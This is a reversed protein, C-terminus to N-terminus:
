YKRRWKRKKIDSESELEDLPELEEPEEMVNEEELEGGAERLAPEAEKEAEEETPEEVETKTEDGEAAEEEHGEENEEAETGEEEMRGGGGKWWRQLIGYYLLLMIIIFIILATLFGITPLYHQFIELYSREVPKEEISIFGSVVRENGLSDVARVQFYHSGPRVGETPWILIYEGTRNAVPTMERWGTSDLDFAVLEVDSIDFVGAHFVVDEGERVVTGTLNEMGWTYTVNIEPGTNDVFITYSKVVRNDARDEVTATLTHEGDSLTTTDLFYEYYRGSEGKFIEFPASGDISLTVRAIGIGDVAYLKLNFVGSIHVGALISVQTLEPPTNDVVFQSEVQVLHGAEDRAQVKLTHHGDVLHTTNLPTSIDVWGGSDVSYLISKLFDDTVQVDIPILGSVIEGNLPGKLILGPPTNDVYFIIPPLYVMKGSLDVAVVSLNHQGDSLMYTDLLLEYYGTQQNFSLIREVGDIDVIVRRIGVQDYASVRVTYSGELMAGPAPNVLAVEPDHNDVVVEITEEVWHGAQDEGRFTIRHPGDALLTTNWPITIPVWSSGDVNYKVPGPFADTISARMEVEGSLYDGSLPYEIRLVPPQNDVNFEVTSSITMKGSLDYAMATVNRVGDETWTITNVTYEYYGSGENYPILINVDFIRIQVFDIGVIDTAVVRVVMEGSVFEGVTPSVVSCVPPTNDVIVRMTRSTEKGSFDTARVKVTHEGDSFYTTNWVVSVDSWGTDDVSYDVSRLFIDEAEVVFRVEGEVIQGDYPTHVILLPAHNDIHFLLPGRTISKGSYDTITINAQYTGDPILSTDTTYEWYGSQYNYAMELSYGFIEISVSAVGVTDAAVARFTYIGGIYQGSSPHTFSGTPYNNDVFLPVEILTQHGALDLARFHITHTGDSLLSTNLPTSINVWGTGDVNYEVRDLFIDTASVNFTEIGELFTSPLPHYVKLVPAHNDLNFQVPGLVTVKGSLDEIYAKVTYTGDPTVSTDTSYEWYGSITNYIATFNHGFVEVNVRSLGVADSATIRFTFVGQVFQGPVPNNISGNPYTNDVVVTLQVQTVHGAKDTSRITVTHSGDPFATTDWITSIDVWGSGDINYVTRDPFADTVTVNIRIRGEVYQGNYPSHITVMPANNDIHFLVPGYTTNHGATDVVFATITHNGDPYLMTNLSYEYYGTGRNLSMVLVESGDIIAKVESLGVTDSASVKLTYVGEIYSNPTPAAVGCTPATNDVVISISQQTVHSANDMARVTLTHTGDSVTSTNLLATLYSGTRNFSKWEMDDIRYEVKNLFVDESSVNIMYDGSLIEGDLPANISLTPANNDIYFTINQTRTSHGVNDYAVAYAQYQGDPYISTSVTYEYSSTIPNYPMTVTRNFVTINVHHVGVLDTAVARFIVSGEVYQGDIPSNIVCSPANNDVYITVASNGVLGTVDKAEATLTHAGDTILTSDWTGTWQNGSKTMQIWANNDIKFQCAIVHSTTNVKVTVIGSVYSRDLPQVIVPNPATNSLTFNVPGYLTVSGSLDTVTVNLWCAGDNFSLTNITREWLQTVSNFYANITGLSSMKGGFTLRVSSVTSPTGASVKFTYHGTVVENPLPAIVDVSVPEVVKLTVNAYRVMTGSTGRVSITYTRKPTSSTTRVTVNSSTVNQNLVGPSFTVNITSTTPSVTYSLTVNSSFNNITDMNVTYTTVAGPSIARVPPEATLYYDPSTSVRLTVWIKKTVGGDGTDTATVRLYYTGAPTSSSTNVQLTTVNTSVGAPTVNIPTITASAGTPAAVVTDSGVASVWDVDLDIRTVVGKSKVDVEYSTNMGPSILHFTPSATLDFTSSVLLRYASSSTGRNMDLVLLGYWGTSEPNYTFQLSGGASSAEDKALYDLLDGTGKYLYMGLRETSPVNDIRFTYQGGSYLYVDYMNILPVSGALTGTYGGGSTFYSYRYDGVYVPGTYDLPDSGYLPGGHSDSEVDVGYSWDRGTFKVVKIYKTGGGLTHGDLIVVDFEDSGRTSSAVMNTMDYDTYAFLDFDEGTNRNIIAVASYYNTYSPAKFRIIDSTGWNWWWGSSVTRAPNDNVLTGGSQTAAASYLSTLSLSSLVLIVLLGTVGFIRGIGSRNKLKM